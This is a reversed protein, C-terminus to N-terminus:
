IRMWIDINGVDKNSDLIGDSMMIVIDGDELIEEYINFDVNELIGIPLSSSNIIEVRDKKKIFTAPSGTKLIQLKGTYLDIFGLDLTTFIEDNSKARLVSNITRIIINKNMNIEMLKELLEIAISSEINAKRGIGM